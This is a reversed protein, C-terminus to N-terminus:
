NALPTSLILAFETRRLLLLPLIPVIPVLGTAKRMVDPFMVGVVLPETLMSLALVAGSVIAPEILLCSNLNVVCPLKVIEFAIVAFAIESAVAVPLLPLM